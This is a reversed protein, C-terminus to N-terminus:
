RKREKEDRWRFEKMAQFVCLRCQMGYIKGVVHNCDRYTANKTKHLRAVSICACMVNALDVMHFRSFQDCIVAFYVFVPVCLPFTFSPSLFLLPSLSLSPYIQNQHTQTRSCLKQSGFMTNPAKFACYVM